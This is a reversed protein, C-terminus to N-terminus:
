EEKEEISEVLPEKRKDVVLSPLTISGLAHTYLPAGRGWSL